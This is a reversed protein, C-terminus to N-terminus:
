VHAKLLYRFFLEDTKPNNTEGTREFGLRELWKHSVIHKNWVLVHINYLCFSELIIGVKETIDVFHRKRIGNSALFWAEMDSDGTKWLGCVCIPENEYIGLLKSTAGDLALGILEAHHILSDFGSASTELQDHERLNHLVPRAQEINFDHLWHIGEKRQSSM